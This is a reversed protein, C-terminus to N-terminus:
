TPQAREHSVLFLNLRSDVTVRLVRLCPGPHCSENRCHAFYILFLFTLLNSLKPYPVAEAQVM